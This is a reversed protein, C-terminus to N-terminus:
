LYILPSASGRELARLHVSGREVGLDELAALASNYALAPTNNNASLHCLFLNRLGPHYFQRIAQATEENCLHGENLIRAKLEPTYPGNVLMNYDYNSEIVVTDAMRAFSLAEETMHDLDTMLVFLRGECRVAYGVTQTADHPVVFYKVKFADAIDVWEGEGMVARCSAIHDRTFTHAALVGHLKKTTFVKVSLYKCYTGLFRIHDLHEHTVLIGCLENINLKNDTMIKKVRRMSVGADILLAKRRGFVDPDTGIYYCNGCSGSSFSLFEMVGIGRRSM